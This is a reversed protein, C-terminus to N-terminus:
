RGRQNHAGHRASRRRARAFRPSRCSWRSCSISSAGEAPPTSGCPTIWSGSRARSRRRRKWSSRSSSIPTPRSRTSGSWCTRAALPQIKDVHLVPGYENLVEVFRSMHTGKYHHPLDVTLSVPRSPTRPGTRRTRVKIPYRLNKVGVRDIAIQRHDTESQTDKLEVLPQMRRFIRAGPGSELDIGPLSRRRPRGTWAPFLKRGSAKKRSEAGM